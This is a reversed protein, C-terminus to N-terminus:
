KVKSRIMSYIVGTLACAIIVVIANVDFFIVLGAASIMLIYSLLEKPSQKFMSILAKLILALVGARIGFFAYRVIRLERFAEFFFSVAVIIIFSPLVVGLTACLAGVFGGIKKGIFTAANVAIPGPTSESIAIVDLLEEGSIWKKKDVVEKEILPIMAYGGGFTFLGIKAFTFFLNKGESM